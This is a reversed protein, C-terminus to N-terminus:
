EERREPTTFYWQWAFELFTQPVFDQEFGYQVNGLDANLLLPNMAGEVTGIITLNQTLLTWGEADLSQREEESPTILREDQIEWIRKVWDPPEIGAEGNSTRWVDWARANVSQGPFSRDGLDPGNAWWIGVAVQNAGQQQWFASGEVEKADVEIGIAEWYQEAMQAGSTAVPTVEYFTIPLLFDSGDPAERFGDGDVDVYGLNELFQKAQEPDYQAYYNTLEENYLASGRPPAFQAPTGLGLFVAENIQNRDLALSLARRFDLESLAASLKPDEVVPNLWYIL